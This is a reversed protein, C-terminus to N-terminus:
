EYTICDAPCSDMAENICDEDGGEAMIVIAKEDDEVFKFIEPCIEVCAECGVCEDEDIKVQKAM